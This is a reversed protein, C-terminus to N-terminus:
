EARMDLASLAPWNDRRQRACRDTYSRRLSSTTWCARGPSERCDSYMVHHSSSSSRDLAEGPGDRPGTVPHEAFKSTLPARTPSSNRRRSSHTYSRAAPRSSRCMRAGCQGSEIAGGSRSRGRDRMASSAVSGSDQGPTRTVSRRLVRATKSGVRAPLAAGSVALGRTGDLTHCTAISSSAEVLPVMALVHVVPASPGRCAVAAGCPIRVNPECYAEVSQGVFLFQLVPRKLQLDQISTIGLRPGPHDVILVALYSHPLCQTRSELRCKLRPAWPRSIRLARVCPQITLTARLVSSRTLCGHELGTLRRCNVLSRLRTTSNGENQPALLGQGQEIQGPMDVDASCLEYLLIGLAYLSSAARPDGFTFEPALVQRIAYQELRGDGVTLDSPLEVLRKSSAECEKMWGPRAFLLDVLSIDCWAGSEVLRRVVRGGAAKETTLFVIRADTEALHLVDATIGAPRDAPHSMRVVEPQRTSGAAHTMCAVRELHVATCLPAVSQGPPWPDDSRIEPVASFWSSADRRWRSKLATSGYPARDQDIANGQVIPLLPHGNRRADSLRKLQFVRARDPWPGRGAAEVLIKLSGIASENYVLELTFERARLMQVVFPLSLLSILYKTSCSVAPRECRLRNCLFGGTGCAPDLHTLGEFQDLSSNKVSSTQVRLYDCTRCSTELLLRSRLDMLLEERSSIGFFDAESDHPETELAVLRGFLRWRHSGDVTPACRSDYLRHRCEFEFRSKLRLMSSSSGSVASRPLETSLCAQPCRAASWCVHQVLAVTDGYAEYWWPRRLKGWAMMVLAAAKNSPVEYENLLDRLDSNSICGAGTEIRALKSGSWDMSHAVSRQARGAQLRFQELRRGLWQMRSTRLAGVRGEACSGAIIVPGQTVGRGLFRSVQQVGGVTTLNKTSVGTKGAGSALYVLFPSVDLNSPDGADVCSCTARKLTNSFISTVWATGRAQEERAAQRLLRVIATLMSCRPTQMSSIVSLYPRSGNHLLKLSIDVAEFVRYVM